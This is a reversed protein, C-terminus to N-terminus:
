PTIPITWPPRLGPGTRISPEDMESYFTTQDPISVSRQRSENRSRIPDVNRNGAPSQRPPSASRLTSPLSLDFTTSGAEVKSDALSRDVNRLLDKIEGTSAAERRLWGYEVWKELSM